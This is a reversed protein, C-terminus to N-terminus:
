GRRDSVRLRAGDPYLEHGTGLGPKGSQDDHGAASVALDQTTCQPPERGERRLLRALMRAGAFPFEMHLEDIRRMLLQDAESVPQGRYYVSSRAIGVLRAQQSVPLAHTRDIM